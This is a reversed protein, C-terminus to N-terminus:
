RFTAQVDEYVELGPLKDAGKTFRLWGNAAKQVADRDFYPGLPGLNLESLNTIRVKFTTRASATLGSATRQRALDANSMDLAQEAAAAREDAIEARAEARAAVTARGAAEAEEAKRREAEAKERAKRAEEEAKRRQEALKERQYESAREGLVAAMKALRDSLGKFFTDVERGAKLHPEKEATRLGDVRKAMAKADKVIVGVADLDADSKVKKPAANARGAIADIESQVSAYNEALIEALPPPNNHLRSHANM